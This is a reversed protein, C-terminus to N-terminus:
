CGVGHVLAFDFRRGHLQAAAEHAPDHEQGQQGRRALGDAIGAFQELAEASEPLAGKRLRRKLTTGEILRMACYHRDNVSGTEFVEVLHEHRVQTGLRGERELRVLQSGDDGDPQYLLKLAVRTGTRRDHAEYVEGGGGRGLRRLLTFPGLESPTVLVPEPDVLAQLAAKAEIAKLFESFELGLSDRYDLPSPTEGADVRDLFEDVARGLAEEKM